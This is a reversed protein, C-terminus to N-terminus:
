VELGKGKHIPQTPVKMNKSIGSETPNATATIRAPTRKGSIWQDDAHSRKQGFHSHAM